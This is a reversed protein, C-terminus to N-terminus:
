PPPRQAGLKVEGQYSLITHCVSTTSEATRLFRLRAFGEPSFDSFSLQKNISGDDFVTGGVFINVDFVVGKVPPSAIIVTEVLQSGDPYTEIVQVGKGHSSHLQFGRLEVQDLIPGSAGGIRAVAYRPSWKEDIVLNFQRDSISSPEIPYLLLSQDAQITAERPLTSVDWIRPRNVWGFIPKEGFSGGFVRVNYDRSLPTIGPSAVHAHLKYEGASKFYYSFCHPATSTNKGSFTEHINEPTLITIQVDSESGKQFASLLLSDNQRLVLNSPPALLNTKQWSFSKTEVKGGNQFSFSVKRVTSEYLPINVHWHQDPSGVPILSGNQVKLFNLYSDKGEVCVPSTFSM